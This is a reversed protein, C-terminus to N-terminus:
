APSEPRAPAAGGSLIGPGPPDRHWADLLRRATGPLEYGQVWGNVTSYPRGFWTALDATTLLGAKSVKELRKVFSM